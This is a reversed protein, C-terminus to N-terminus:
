IHILSLTKDTEVEVIPEGAEVRDGEQKLWTSLRVSEVSDALEPLRVETDNMTSLADTGNDYVCGPPRM